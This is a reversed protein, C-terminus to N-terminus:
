NLLLGPGVPPQLASVATRWLGQAVAREAFFLFCGPFDSPSPLSIDTDLLSIKCGGSAEKKQTKKGEKISHTCHVDTRSQTQWGAIEHASVANQQVFSHFFYHRLKDWQKTGRCNVTDTNLVYIPSTTRIASSNLQKENMDESSKEEM